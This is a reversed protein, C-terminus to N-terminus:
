LVCTQMSEKVLREVPKILGVIVVSINTIDSIRDLEKSGLFFLLM